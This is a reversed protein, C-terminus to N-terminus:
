PYYTLDLTPRQSATGYELSRLRGLRTTLASETADSLRWGNNATGDVYAQVDAAVNWTLTVGSTTGTSASATVSSVAPQATWTVGGETWSATARRVDYTRSASPATFLYLTLSATKILANAPISCSSLDFRLFTRRNSLVASQVDLETASGYNTIPALQDVYSDAVPAGLSCSTAVISTTTSYTTLKQSSVTMSGALAVGSALALALALALAVNAPRLRFRGSM